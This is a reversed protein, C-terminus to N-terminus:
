LPGRIGPDRGRGSVVRTPIIAANTDYDPTVVYHEVITKVGFANVYPVKVYEGPPERGIVNVGPLTISASAPASDAPPLAASQPGPSRCSGHGARCVPDANAAIAIGALFAGGLVMSKGIVPM